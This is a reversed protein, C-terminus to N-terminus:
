LLFYHQFVSYMLGKIFHITTLTNFHLKMSKKCKQSIFMETIFMKTMAKILIPNEKKFYYNM